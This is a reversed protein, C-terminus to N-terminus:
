RNRARQLGDPDLHRRPRADLYDAEAPYVYLNAAATHPMFELDRLADAGQAQVWDNFDSWM